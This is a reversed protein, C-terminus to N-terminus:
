SDCIIINNIIEKIKLIKQEKKGKKIKPSQKNKTKKEKEPLLDTKLVPLSINKRLCSEGGEATSSDLSQMTTGSFSRSVKTKSGLSYNLSFSLFETTVRGSLVL